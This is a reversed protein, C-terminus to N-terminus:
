RCVGERCRRAESSTAGKVSRGLRAAETVAAMEAHVIRGFELVDMLQVGALLPNDGEGISRGDLAEKVLAEVEHKRIKTNLWNRSKLRDIIEALMERKLRASSDYGVKFDRM